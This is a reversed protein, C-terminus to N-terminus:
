GASVSVAVSALHAFVPNHSIRSSTQTPVRHLGKTQSNGDHNVTNRTRDTELHHNPQPNFSLGADLSVGTRRVAFHNLNM